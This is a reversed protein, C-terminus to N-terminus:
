EAFVHPTGLALTGGESSKYWQRDPQALIVMELGVGAVVADLELCDLM